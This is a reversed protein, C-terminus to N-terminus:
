AAKGKLLELAKTLQEDVQLGPKKVPAPAADEPAGEDDADAGADAGENDVTGCIM